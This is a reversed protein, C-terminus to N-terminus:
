RLLLTLSVDLVENTGRGEERYRRIDSDAASCLLCRTRQMNPSSSLLLCVQTERFPNSRMVCPAKEKEPQHRAPILVQLVEPPGLCARVDEGFSRLCM